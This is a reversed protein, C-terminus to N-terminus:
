AGTTKRKEITKITRRNLINDFFVYIANIKTITALRFKQSLEM